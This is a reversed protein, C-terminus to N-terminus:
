KQDFLSRTLITIGTNHNNVGGLLLKNLREIILHQEMRMNSIQDQHHKRFFRRKKVRPSTSFQEVMNKKRVVFVSETLQRRTMVM